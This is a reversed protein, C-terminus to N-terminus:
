PALWSGPLNRAVTFVAGLAIGVSVVPWSSLATLGRQRGRWADVTWRALVFVAVPMALLLLANSSAAGVLDGHTLDNVARLGGCAPCYIGLLSIPCYGWSGSAHPDRLHLAVTAAALGAITAIPTVMRRPRTCALPSVVALSM